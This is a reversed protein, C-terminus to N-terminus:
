PTTALRERGPGGCRSQACDSRRSTVGCPAAADRARACCRADCEGPEHHSEPGFVNVLDQAKDPIAGYGKSHRGRVPTRTGHANVFVFAHGHGLTSTGYRPTGDRAKGVFDSTFTPLASDCLTSSEEEETAARSTSGVKNSIELRIPLHM